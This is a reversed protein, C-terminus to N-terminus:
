ELWDPVFGFDIIIQSSRLSGRKSSTAHETKRAQCRKCTERAQFWKLERVRKSSIAHTNGARPVM